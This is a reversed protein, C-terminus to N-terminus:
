EIRAGVAYRPLCEGLIAGGLNSDRERVTPVGPVANFPLKLALIAASRDRPSLDENPQSDVRLGDLM